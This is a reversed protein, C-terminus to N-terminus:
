GDYKAVLPCVYAHWYADLWEITGLWWPKIM